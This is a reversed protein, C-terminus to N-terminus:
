FTIGLKIRYDLTAGKTSIKITYVKGPKFLITDSFVFPEGDATGSLVIDNSTGTQSITFSKANGPMTFAVIDVDSASDLRGCFTADNQGPMNNPTSNNPETEAVSDPNCQTGGDGGTVIGSDLDTGGSSSTNGSDVDGGSSSTNGGSSSTNNGSSSTNNGSSTNENGSSSNNTDDDDDGSAGSSSSSKGADAGPKAAPDSSSCAFATVTALIATSLALLAPRM